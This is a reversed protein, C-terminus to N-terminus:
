GYADRAINLNLMATYINHSILKGNAEEWPSLRFGVKSGGVANSVSDIIELAFRARNEVSGGYEDTRKNTTDQTFQDILYGNAGHLEIGDFGARIANVAATTYWQIYEKIEILYYILNHLGLRSSITKGGKINLPRPTRSIQPLKVDSASVYPYGGEAELVSKEALRGAAWLQCYIFSGCAHVTETVQWGYL